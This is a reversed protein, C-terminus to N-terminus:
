RPTLDLTLETFLPSIQKLVAERQAIVEAMQNAPLQLKAGNETIRLRFDTFGLCFLVKEGQEIKQLLEATIRRGTPVRTALCAYAPKDHTFLDAQKSLRRIEQKTLGCERLPSRVGLEQLAQMGPRDSSDDSANTGDLLLAFGDKKAEERLRTFIAHKCFYCRRPKNEVIQPLSLVDFSIIRLPTELEAALRKADELEFEPQFPSKIFYAQLSCGYQRAAYLLYASDTGGSFALAAMRNQSFFEKLDM